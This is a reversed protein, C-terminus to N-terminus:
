KLTLYELYSQREIQKFSNFSSNSEISDNFWLYCKHCLAFLHGDSKRIYFKSSLKKEIHMLGTYYCNIIKDPM